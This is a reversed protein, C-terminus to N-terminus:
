IERLQIITQLSALQKFESPISLFIKKNNEKNKQIPVGKKIIKQIYDRISSESLSLKKAILPYDVVFGEEQLQYLTSFVLMEQNTLKKFKSRIDKKITDLSKLIESVQEIQDIRDTRNSIPTHQNTQQNTPKNTPVGDNGISIRYIHPKLAKYPWNGTPNNSQEDENTNIEHIDTPNSESQQKNTQKNTQQTSLVSNITRKIEQMESSISLMSDKLSEIDQKARSFAEKIPDKKDM